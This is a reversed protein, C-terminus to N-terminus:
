IFLFQKSIVRCVALKVTNNYFEDPFHLRGVECWFLFIAKEILNLLCILMLENAQKM